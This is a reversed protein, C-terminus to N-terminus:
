KELVHAGFERALLAAGLFEGFGEAVGANGIVVDGEDAFAAVLNAGDGEGRFVGAGLDGEEAREGLRGGGGGLRRRWGLLVRLGGEGKCPRSSSSGTPDRGAKERKGKERGMGTM